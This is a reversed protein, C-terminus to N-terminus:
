RDREYHERLAERFRQEIARAPVGLSRAQSVTRWLARTIIDSRIGAPASGVDAVRFASGDAAPTLLRVQELSRYAREVTNPNVQLQVALEKVPPLADGASLSGTLIRMAVADAIQRHAPIGCKHDIEIVVRWGPMGGSFQDV